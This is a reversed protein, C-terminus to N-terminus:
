ARGGSELDNQNSDASSTIHTQKIFLCYVIGCLFLFAIPIPLGSLKGDPHYALYIFCSIIGALNIFVWLFRTDEAKRIKYQEESLDSLRFRGKKILGLILFSYLWLGFPASSLSRETLLDAFTIAMGLAFFAVVFYSINQRWIEQIWLLPLVLLLVAVSTAVFLHFSPKGRLIFISVVECCVLALLVPIRVKRFASIEM